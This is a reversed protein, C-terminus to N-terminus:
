VPIANLLGHWNNKMHHVYKGAKYNYLEPLSIQYDNTYHVYTGTKYPTGKVYNFHM